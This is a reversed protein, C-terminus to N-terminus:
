LSPYAITVVTSSQSGIGEFTSAVQIFNLVPYCLVPFRLTLVGADKKDDLLIDLFHIMVDLFNGPIFHLNKQPSHGRHLAKVVWARPMTMGNFGADSHHYHNYILQGCYDEALSVLVLIDVAPVEFVLHSGVPTLEQERSLPSLRAGYLSTGQAPGISM